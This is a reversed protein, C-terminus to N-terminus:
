YIATIPTLIVKNNEDLKNDPNYSYILIFLISIDMFSLISKPHNTGQCNITLLEKYYVTIQLIWWEYTGKRARREGRSGDGEEKTLPSHLSGRATDRDPGKRWRPGLSLSVPGVENGESREPRETFSTFRLATSARSFPGGESRVKNVRPPGPPFSTLCPYWSWWAHLILHISQFSLCRFFLFSIINYHLFPGSVTRECHCPVGAM